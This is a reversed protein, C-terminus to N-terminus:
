ARLEYWASRYEAGQGMSKRLLTRNRKSHHLAYLGCAGGVIGILGSLVAFIALIM